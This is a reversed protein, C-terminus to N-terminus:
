IVILKCRIRLYIEDVSYSNVTVLPDNLQFRPINQYNSTEGTFPISGYRFFDIQLASELQSIPVVFETGDNLGYNGGLLAFAYKAKTTTINPIGIFVPDNRPLVSTVQPTTNLNFYNISIRVYSNPGYQSNFYAKINSMDLFISPTFHTADTQSVAFEVFNESTLEKLILTRKLSQQREEGDLIRANITSM